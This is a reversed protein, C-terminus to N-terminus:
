HRLLLPPLRLLRYVHRHLLNPLHPLPHLSPPIPILRQPPHHRRHRLLPRPHLPHRLLNPNHLFKNNSTNVLTPHLCFSCQHTKYPIFIYRFYVFSISHLVVMRKICFLSLRSVFSSIYVVHFLLRPILIVPYLLLGVRKWCLLYISYLFRTHMVLSLSVERLNGVSFISMFYFVFYFYSIDVISPHLVSGDMECLCFRYSFSSAHIFSGSWGDGGGFIVTVWLVIGFSGEM